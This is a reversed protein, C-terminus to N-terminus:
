FPLYLCHLGLSQETQRKSIFVMSVFPVIRDHLLICIIQPWFSGEPPNAPSHVRQSSTVVHCQMEKELSSLTFVKPLSAFGELGHQPHFASHSCSGPSNVHWRDGAKIGYLYLSLPRSPGGLAEPQAGEPTEVGSQKCLGWFSNQFLVHRTTCKLHCGWIKVILKFPQLSAIEPAKYIKVTQLWIFNDCWEKFLKWHFIFVRAIQFRRDDTWFYIFARRKFFLYKADNRKRRPFMTGNWERWLTKGRYLTNEHKFTEM